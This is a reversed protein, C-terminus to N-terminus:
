GLAPELLREPMASGSGTLHETIAKTDRNGVALGTELSEVIHAARIALLSFSGADGLGHSSECLGNLYCPGIGPRQVTYDRRVRLSGDDEVDLVDLVDSLLPPSPEKGEGVGIDTFGTALIVADVRLKERSGSLKDAILLDVGDEGSSVTEVVANNHLSFRTRGDLREEYLRVYLAHLVDLDAASYNTARLQQQLDLRTAKDSRHYTDVFEPFYVHDSFPSTDKQRMAFGRHVAHIRLEPFRSMLDLHIEVASQSAGLVAVSELKHRLSAIRSLYDSLHFVRPGLAERFQPPINRSRGTGVLLARAQITGTPTEVNWRRSREDYSVRRAPQAYTVDEAFFGAAWRIYRAYDKRLPYTLGLNLYEFLRNDCKLYNLFSFHSRPNRPTVLDRLPNNQIDSGDLLMDPHWGSQPAAEVFRTTLRSGIERLAIAVALNSPGFGIGLVDCTTTSTADISM